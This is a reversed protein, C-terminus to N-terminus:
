VITMAFAEIMQALHATLGESRVFRYLGLSRLTRGLVLAGVIFPLVQRVPNSLLRVSSQHESMAVTVIVLAFLDVTRFVHSSLRKSQSSRVSVLRRPRMPGRRSVPQELAGDTKTVTTM